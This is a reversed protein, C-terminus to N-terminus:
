WSLGSSVGKDTYSETTKNQKQLSFNNIQFVNLSQKKKKRRFHIEWTSPYLILSFKGVSREKM